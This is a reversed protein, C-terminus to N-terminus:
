SKTIEPKSENTEDKIISLIGWSLFAIIAGVSLIKFASVSIFYILLPGLDISM